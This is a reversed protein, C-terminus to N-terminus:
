MTSIFAAAATAGHCSYSIADPRLDQYTESAAGAVSSTIFTVYRGSLLEADTDITRTTYHNQRETSFLVQRTM